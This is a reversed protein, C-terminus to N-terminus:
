EMEVEIKYFGKQETTHNTDSFPVGTWPVNTELTQFGSLLNSAWYVTYVRGSAAIWSIVNESSLSGLDSILFKSAPNTPNLNAVYAELVTNIGNACVNTAAANTAGGYYHLEWEDPLGDSDTDPEGQTDTIEILDVFLADNTSQEILEIATFSAPSGHFDFDTVVQTGNLSLNWVKSSYDAQIEFKNWGNSVAGATETANTSDYAVLLNNTNVYFVASAASAVTGPADGPVPKARFTIWVNTTDGDFTHSVTADTASLAQAGSYVTGTQVLAGGDGSVVWGHQGDLTGLTGAMNTPTTEFTETFPLHESPHIDDDDERATLFVDIASDSSCRILAEGDNFDSDEGATLTVTQPVSWTETTFVPNTGDTLTIDLDGSARRVNVTVTNGPDASCNIGFTNTGNEPVILLNTTIIIDWDYTEVPAIEIGSILTKGTVPTLSVNLSSGCTIGSFERVCGNEGEAAEQVPDFFSLLQQGGISVHFVREGVESDGPESFYLRVTNTGGSQNLTLEIETAGEVGSATIWGNAEDPYRTAADSFYEPSGSLSIAIDPSTGGISPYDMWLTGNDALRDGPAGFNIGVRNVAGASSKVPDFTWLGAEPMHFLALSAKNQYNCTCGSTSDPANLVGNAPILNPACGSRFGGFNGAGGHGNKLDVFGAAGSRMTMLHESAVATSCGYNRSFDWPTDLGTLPHPLTYTGGTLLNLAKGSSAKQVMIRDKYLIYPGHDYEGHSDDWLMNGTEGAYAIIRENPEGTVMDRSKRGSQILVDYEESYGLWTGFINNTKSWLVSGTNVDLAYLCFPASPDVSSFGLRSTGDSEGPPLRDLTYLTDNGAIIANHYFANSSVRSWVVSGTYRNMLLLERSCTENWNDLGLGIPNSFIFPDSAVILFDGWVKIQSYYHAENTFTVLTEGDVPNLHLIVGSQCVYVGDTASAYNAGMGMIGPTHRENDHDFGIGIDPLDKEWLTRGTYVDRAIIHDHGEIFLRGGIVQESPGHHGHGYIKENDHDGFWLVGLPLKVLKDKSKLTQSTDAYDHSWDGSDPLAGVRELITYDGSIRVSANSLGASAIGSTFLTVHNGELCCEGGYPRLSYFIKEVFDNGEVTGPAPFNQEESVILNALYPPILATEITGQQVSVRKGGVGLNFSWRERLSRVDTANTHLGIVTMGTQEALSEILRGTGAQLVICYGGDQGTESVVSQANTTWGDEPPWSVPSEGPNQSAGTDTEGFCLINGERTVVFLKGDAVLMEEVAGTITKEWIKQASGGLDEIAIILNDNKAYIVNGAKCSPTYQSASFDWRKTMDDTNYASIYSQNSSYVINTTLIAGDTLNTVPAGDWRGDSLKFCKGSNNFWDRIGAVYDTGNKYLNPHSLHSYIYDGTDRDLVATARGNPLILRNTLAVLCGQPALAGFSATFHPHDIRLDGNGGNRWVEAGSEADVAYVFVGMFPWIGASFYINGDALVPGGRAPWLSGLRGNGLGQKDSPAGRFRWIQSGTAADVCYLYGDDSVCYVKNSDAVPALRMPADTYFMWNTEGTETNYSALSNNWSSCIFMQTGAVVPTYARDFNLRGEDSWAPELAPLELVWQLYLNTSIAGPSAASRNADYRWMPWDEAHAAHFSLVALCCVLLGVNKKKM